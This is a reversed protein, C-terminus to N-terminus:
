RAMWRMGCWRNFDRETSLIWLRFAKMRTLAKHVIGWLRIIAHTGDNEARVGNIM